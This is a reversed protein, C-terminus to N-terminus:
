VRQDPRVDAEVQRAHVRPQAKLAHEEVPSGDDHVFQQVTPKNEATNQLHRPGLLKRFRPHASSQRTGPRLDIPATHADPFNRRVTTWPECPVSPQVHGDSTGRGLGPRCQQRVIAGAAPRVAREEQALIRVHVNLLRIVRGRYVGGLHVAM